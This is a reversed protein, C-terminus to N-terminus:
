DKWMLRFVASCMCVQSPLDALNDENNGTRSAPSDTLATNIYPKLDITASNVTEETQQRSKIKTEAL